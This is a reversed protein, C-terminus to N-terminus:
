GELKGVAKVLRVIHGQLPGQCKPRWKEWFAALERARAIVRRQKQILM